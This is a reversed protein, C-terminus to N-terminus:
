SKEKKFKQIATQQKAVDDETGLFFAGWDPLEDDAICADVDIEFADGPIQGKTYLISTHSKGPCVYLPTGAQKAVKCAQKVSVANDKDGIMTLSGVPLKPVPADTWQRLSAPAIFTVPPLESMDDDLAAKSLAAAGRSYAYVREPREKAIKKAITDAEEDSVLGSKNLEVGGYGLRAFLEKETMGAGHLGLSKELLVERILARLLNESLRM